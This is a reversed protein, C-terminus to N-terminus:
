SIHELDSISNINTFMSLKDDFMRSYREDMYITEGKKLIEHIKYNGAEIETKFRETLRVSYFSYLPEIYIGNMPVLADAKCGNTELLEIMLRIHDTNIHPMDGAIVFVYESKAQMLASYIGVAPGFRGDIVDTIVETDFMTLKGETAVSLRVDSFVCKLQEIIVELLYRGKIKIYTKDFPMRSSVGGCLVVADGFSNM